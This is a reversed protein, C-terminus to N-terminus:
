CSVGAPGDCRMLCSFQIDVSGSVRGHLSCHSNNRWHVYHRSSAGAHSLRLQLRIASSRRSGVAAVRALRYQAVDCSGASRHPSEPRGPQLWLGYARFSRTEWLSESRDRDAHLDRRRWCSQEGCTYRVYVQDCSASFAAAFQDVDSGFTRRMQCDCGGSSALSLMWLSSQQGVPFDFEISAHRSWPSDISLRRVWGFQTVSWRCRRDPQCFRCVGIAVGIRRPQDNM